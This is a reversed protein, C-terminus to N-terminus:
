FFSVNLLTRPERKQSLEYIEEDKYRIDLSVKVTNVLDMSVEPWCNHNSDIDM